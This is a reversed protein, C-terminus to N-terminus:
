VFYRVKYKDLLCDIFRNPIEFNATDSFQERNEYFTATTSFIWVKMDEPLKEYGAKYEVEVDQVKNLTIKALVDKNDLQYDNININILEIFPPYPLEFEKANDVYFLFEKQTISRNTLAEAKKIAALVFSKILKDEETNTVRLYLKVEELDILGDFPSIENLTKIKM